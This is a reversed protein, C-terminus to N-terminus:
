TLADAILMALRAWIWISAAIIGLWASMRLWSIEANYDRPDGKDQDYRM